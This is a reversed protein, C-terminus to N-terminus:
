KTENAKKKSHLIGRNPIKKSFLPFDFINKGAWLYYKKKAYFVFNFELM